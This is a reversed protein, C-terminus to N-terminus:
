LLVDNLDTGLEYWALTGTTSLTGTRTLTKYVPCRYIGSSPLQRSELPNLHLVPMPSFLEKPKPDALCGQGKDWRAGASVCPPTSYPSGVANQKGELFLGYIYVGEDPPYVLAGVPEDKM